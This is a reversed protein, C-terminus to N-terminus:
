IWGFKGTVRYSSIWGIWLNKKKSLFHVVYTYIIKKEILVKKDL